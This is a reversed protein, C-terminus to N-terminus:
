PRQRSFRGGSLRARMGWKTVLWLAEVLIRRSIKSEGHERERFTIPSEGVTYGLNWARMVLEIQFAYGGSAFPEAVLDKLLATRYVRYGSTADRVPIGLMFRAYANATRSLAVRARNWNTVSGGPIYRSGVTLDFRAAADALLGPLESPDHSLDSDMEVVLDYGDSLGAHFGELYASALGSKRPREVLRLRPESAARAAVIAGTGDPSSDDVVLVEVHPVALVGDLVREVTASEQYTPLIALARYGAALPEPTPRATRRRKPLVIMALVFALALWPVWDGLRVYWTREDSSRITGRLIGTQFLGMQGTVRGSPDVFASIGSVAGDVVWRGDEVARMRSMQLHQASAATFGYSANNVTVVLFGAGDRVMQRPIDPFSNEFCIPTGFAPLGAVSVTHIREGPTRDVPVQELAKIWSLQRRFPVYEGFPVLHVKNYRDVLTGTADYLLVDTYERGDPDDTIAGALTPAGVSVIADHVLTATAPDSLAYSDLAGEGWVVLAPPDGALREHERAILQAVGADPDTPDVASGQHVDVQVAAVTIARGDPVSFAIAWPALVVFVTVAAAAARLRVSGEGALIALILGNVLAVVFTVGWVGTVTALRVTVRNDVQSIGLSGWTFGGLPWLGRLWDIVTWLAAWGFATVLPRGPRSVAGALLGFLAASLSMLLTLAIWALVGFRWIWYMTAGYAAVGFVLGLLFGRGPGVDTLMWLFPVLAVFAVPWWALPPFALSM